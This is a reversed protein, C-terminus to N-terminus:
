GQGPIRRADRWRLLHPLVLMWLGSFMMVFLPPLPLLYVWEVPEIGLGLCIFILMVLLTFIMAMWRHLQRNRASWNM